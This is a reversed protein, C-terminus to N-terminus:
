IRDAHKFFWDRLCNKCTTEDPDDTCIFRMSKWGSFKGDVFQRNPLGCCSFILPDRLDVCSRLHVPTM